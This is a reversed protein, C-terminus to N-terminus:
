GRCRTERDVRRMTLASAAAWHCSATATAHFVNSRASERCRVGNGRKMPVLSDGSGAVAGGLGYHRGKQPNLTEVATGCSILRTEEGRYARGIEVLLKALDAPTSWLGGAARGPMERWGGPLERGDAYHGPAADGALQDPLPQTFTSDTMGVPWFVPEHLAEDFSTGTNAEVLAQVVEYGGGSYAFRTGPIYVVRM